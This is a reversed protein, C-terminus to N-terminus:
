FFVFLENEDEADDNGVFEKRLLLKLLPEHLERMDLIGRKKQDIYSVDIIIRQLNATCLAGNDLLASLRDPTGVGFDIKNKKLTTAQEALKMHKAFLKSVNPNKVGQKPLGSKLARYIDAARIGSATVIVTHPAGCPNAPTPKLDASQSKLFAPLTDQTRMQKWTSSDKICRVPILKDELEVSSLETGYLRTRSNTYDALLQSDMREFARNVGHEQDLDDENIEKARMQRNAKRKEKKQAKKAKKAAGATAIEDDAKRKKRESAPATDFEPDILPVGSEAESDSSM